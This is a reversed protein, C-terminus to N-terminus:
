EVSWSSWESWLMGGNRIIGAFIGETLSSLAYALLQDLIALKRPLILLLKIWLLYSFGFFTKRLLMVCKGLCSSFPLLPVPLHLSNRRM